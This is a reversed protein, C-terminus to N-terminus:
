VFEGLAADLSAHQEFQGELRTLILIKKITDPLNCLKILGLREDCERKLRTLAELGASDIGTAEAFDVVFDRGDRDFTQEVQRRFEPVNVFNLEGDIALVCVSGCEHVSTSM